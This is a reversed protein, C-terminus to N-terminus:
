RFVVTSIYLPRYTWSSLNFTNSQKEKIYVKEKWKVLNRLLINHKKVKGCSESVELKNALYLTQLVTKQLM